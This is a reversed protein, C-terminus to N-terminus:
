TDRSNVEMRLGNGQNIISRLYKLYSVRFNIAVIEVYIRRISIKLKEM